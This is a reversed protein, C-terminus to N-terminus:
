NNDLASWSPMNSLGNASEMYNSVGTGNTPSFKFTINGTRNDDAAHSMEFQTLDCNNYCVSEKNTGDDAEIYIRRKGPQASTESAMTYVDIATTAVDKAFAMENWRDANIEIKPVIELAVEVQSAPKEKDIFGGFAAVSETDTDGGTQAYNVIEGEIFDTSAVDAAEISTSVIAIKVMSRSIATM